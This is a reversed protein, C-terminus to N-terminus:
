FRGTGGPPPRFTRSRGKEALEPKGDLLPAGVTLIQFYSNSLISVTNVPILSTGFINGVFRREPVKRGRQETWSEGAHLLRAHRTPRGRLNGDCGPVGAPRCPLTWGIFRAQLVIRGRRLLSAGVRAIGVRARGRAPEADRVRGFRRAARVRLLGPTSHARLRRREDDEGGGSSQRASEPVRPSPSTDTIASCSSGRACNAVRM